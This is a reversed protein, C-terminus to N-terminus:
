RKRITKLSLDSSDAEEKDRKYLIFLVSISFALTFMSFILMLVYNRASALYIYILILISFFVLLVISIVRNSFKLKMDLDFSDPDFTFGERIARTTVGVAICVLFTALQIMYGEFTFPKVLSMKILDYFDVIYMLLVQILAFLLWSSSVMFVSTWIRLKLFKNVLLILLLIQLFPLLQSLMHYYNFFVSVLALIMCTLLLRIHRYFYLKVKFLCTGLYLLSSFEIVSFLYSILINVNM